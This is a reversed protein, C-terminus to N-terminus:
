VLCASIFLTLATWKFTQGFGMMDALSGGLLPGFLTGTISGTQLTGLVRGAIHEPTQVSIFAQSTSIFGSFAGMIFRLFFLQWVSTVFGMLFVSIALGTASIMLIRKR